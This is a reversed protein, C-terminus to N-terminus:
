AQPPHKALYEDRAKRAMALAQEFNPAFVVNQRFLNILLNAMIRTTPRTEIFVMQIITPKSDRMIIGIRRLDPPITAQEMDIILVAPSENLSRFHAVGEDRMAEIEDYTVQGEWVQHAIQPELRTVTTPM